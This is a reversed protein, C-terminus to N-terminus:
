INSSKVLDSLTGQFILFGSFKGLRMLKGKNCSVEYCISIADLPDAKSEKEPM